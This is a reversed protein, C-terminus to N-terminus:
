WTSSVSCHAKKLFKNMFHFLSDNQLRKKTTIVHISYEYAQLSIALHVLIFVHEQM